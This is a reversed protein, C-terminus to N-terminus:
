CSPKRPPSCAPTFMPLREVSRRRGQAAAPRDGTLMAIREVGSLRLEALVDAADTRIRDSAGIVGIVQGDRAVLLATQGAADLRTSHPTRRPPSRSARNRWFDGRASSRSDNGDVTAGVGGGPHAQFETPRRRHVCKAIRGCCRDDPGASARQGTRGLRRHPAIRKETMGLPVVDGLELRGETLTGTKDFAFANVGALRELAAGGKVLVGTGALRGLAAIVAAPTALILACPCAVVLVALTPYVSVRMPRDSRWGNRPRSSHALRTPSTSSSHSQRWGWSRRCSTAPWGIPRGSAPAKDKLAKATLEIVRGAVTQEAVRRAEVTLVGLQNISGALM